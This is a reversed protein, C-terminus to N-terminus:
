TEGAVRHYIEAYRRGLQRWTLGNDVVFARGARGMRTRLAPDDRLRVIRAALAEVDGAQFLLGTEQDTVVEMTGPIASAIVPLEAAMAELVVNPMGESYSALVLADADGLLAAIDHSPVMGVFRVRDELGLDRALAELREREPGDGAVVLRTSRTADAKAVAELICDVAKNPLLSGVFILEIRGRESTQQRNVTLFHDEVGNPILMLDRVGRGIAKDAAKALGQAVAVVQASWRFTLWLMLRYLLSGETRAVDQGHLTTVVPTGTLRGILGAVAGNVSWNAHLIDATRAVRLCALMMASLFVPLILFLLPNRKLAAPVGGPAHALVQWSRPAYRFARLTYRAHKEMDAPSADCPTVVSVRLEEPLGCILRKVFIGSVSRARLPFSTTVIGIHLKHRPANVLLL